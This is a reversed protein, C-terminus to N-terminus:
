LKTIKIVGIIKVRIEKCTYSSNGKFVNKRLIGWCIPFGLTVAGMQGSLLARVQGSCVAGELDSCLAGV